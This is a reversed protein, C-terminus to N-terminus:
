SSPTKAKLKAIVEDETLNACEKEMRDGFDTGIPINEIRALTKALLYIESCVEKDLDAHVEDSVIQNIHNSIKTFIVDKTLDKIDMQLIENFDEIIPIKENDTLNKALFYIEACIATERAARNEGWADLYADSTAMEILTELSVATFYNSVFVGNGLFMLAIGVSDMRLLEDKLIEDLLGHPDDWEFRYWLNIIEQLSFPQHRFDLSAIMLSRNGASIEILDMLQDNSFSFVDWTGM